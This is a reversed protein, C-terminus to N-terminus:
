AIKAFECLMRYTGTFVYYTRKSFRSKVIVHKTLGYEGLDEDKVINAILRLRFMLRLDSSVLLRKFIQPNANTSEYM